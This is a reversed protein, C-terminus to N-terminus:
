KLLIMKKVSSYNETQLKYFYIGSSLNSGDFEVEYSGASKEENVLTAVERGLLDYVKLTVFATQPVQYNIKTTPNFPNPYNQFLKFNEPLKILDMISLITNGYVISDIICGVLENHVFFYGNHRLVNFGISDTYSWYIYIWSYVNNTLWRNFINKISVQTIGTIEINNYYLLATDGTVMNFDIVLWNHPYEIIKNGDQRLYLYGEQQLVFSNQETSYMNLKKYIYGDNLLTDKEVELMLKVDNNYGESFFWKNGPSLPFYSFQPVDIIKFNQSSIDYILPNESSEIKILCQDSSTDPVNWYLINDWLNSIINIWSTGNDLSLYVNVYSVQHPEWEIIYITNRGIVEGGNPSIITIDPNYIISFNNDSIDFINPYERDAVKVLCSDSNITPLDYWIFLNDSGDLSDIIVSWNSGNDSSLYLTVYDVNVVEWEIFFSEDIPYVQEGGNPSIVTISKTAHDQASIEFNILLIILALVIKKM